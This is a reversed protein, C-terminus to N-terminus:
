SAVECVTLEGGEGLYVPQSRPVVDNIMACATADDIVNWLWAPGDTGATAFLPGAIDVAVDIIDGRESTLPSGIARGSALDWLRITGDRAVALLVSDDDLFAVGQAGRPLTAFPGAILRELDASWVTATENGSGFALQEGDSSWVVAALFDGTLRAPGAARTGDRRWVDAQGQQGAVALRDGDPHWAMAEVGDGAYEGFQVEMSGTALDWLRVQGDRGSTALTTGDPDFALTRIRETSATVRSMAGTGVDVFVVEGDDSGAVVTSADPSFAVARVASSSVEVAFTEAGSTPDHLRLTGTGDGTAVFAGGPSIAVAFADGDTPLEVGLPVANGLAWIRLTQDRGLTLLTDDVFASAFVQLAGIPAQRDIIEETARDWWLVEGSRSGVVIGSGDPTFQAGRLEAVEGATSAALLPEELLGGDSTRRVTITGDSSSTMFETGDASFVLEWVDSSHAEVRAFLPSLGPLSWGWVFGQGSSALLVDGAPSFAVTLMDLSEVIPEATMAGTTADWVRVRANETATAVQNGDPSWAVDWVLSGQEIVRAPEPGVTLGDVPWIRLTGDFSGTALRSGDPSFALTWVSDEHGEISGVETRTSLDWFRVGGERDSVAVLGGDPSVAFTPADGTDITGAAFLGAEAMARRADVLALWADRSPGDTRARAELGLALGLPAETEATLRAVLGLNDLVRQDAARTREISRTRQIGAWSVIALGILGVVAAIILGRTRRQRRLQAAREAAEAEAAQISANLFDLETPGLHGPSRLAWEKAAALPTGRFVMAPDDGMERWEAAANSLHSRLRLDDLSEDIWQSLRPWESILAEHTIQVTADDASLLRADVLQRVVPEVGSVEDLPIRRRTHAAGPRVTVMRLLLDRTAARQEDDLSETYVSEATQAIAGAVGGSERFGARTLRRGDRRRWTEVLAHGLLPLSGPDAGVEAVIVDVLGEEIELGLREAPGTIARRLQLAEMPGVLMQHETLQRALWPHRAAEGYFDARMAFVFRVRAATPDVIAAVAAVFREALTGDADHTFVEEFQDVCVLLGGTVDTIADAARRWEFEPDAAPDITLSFGNAEATRLLQYRMEGFPDAGPTMLIVPWRESGELEGRQVGPIVGARVVSSKGSGSAGLVALVRAQRLRALADETLSERGFFSAAHEPEYSALGRYPCEESRRVPSISTAEHGPRREEVGLIRRSEGAWEDMTRHRRERIPDLGKVMFARWEPALEHRRAEVDGFGPPADGILVHWLLASAAYVDSEPGLEGDALLQEPSQYGDSGGVVSVEPSAVVDKALGLDAILLREDARILALGISTAQESEERDGFGASEGGTSRLLLNRPNLDRHVLGAAHIAGMGEALGGVLRALGEVDPGHHKGRQELRQALSGRDGLEMVFYPRGDELEGIDHVAVVSPNRVRRLHRAEALFRDRMDADDAWHDALIKIAVSSSLQPDFARVVRAFAGVGLPAQIEFRGLRDPLRSDNM